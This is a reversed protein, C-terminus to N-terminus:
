SKNEIEQRFKSLLESVPFIGCDEGGRTRLSAYLHKDDAKEEEKNGIICMYPAKQLTWHRIKAPLTKSESDFHARVDHKTFYDTIKQATDANKSSVPLVAVQVPALWLPFNGNYHEILFGVFREHSGLPARHIIVPTKEDGHEDVYTLGFREGMYLDIQNTSTAFERGISSTVIFDIKPGYFAADGKKEVMPIDTREVAQRMLMEAKQWMEENGHYKEKDHPDRLALELHYNKIGLAKYYYEHLKMVNLFEDVAQEETCYIHADNQTFGRVRMLGFLEGSSEYRYCTGFEALRLPLERYSRQRTNFIMHHHPCNMPKLYYEEGDDLKMSPYMDGKYYPLHGSTLYLQSKTISPTTVHQYGHEKETQKAWKELEDKIIYGNPLWLILGPGVNQNITFLEMDKGIKRHDRKKAEELMALYEDLEEKTPFITGYIRTLMKNKESGKWYAGAISLLKFHKLEDKPCEIHGGRCLDCFDGSTYLTIPDGKETIEDILECKYPNDKFMEKAEESSVEKKDFHDWCMVLERMKKEINDLDDQTISQSLEVDYYFGNEIPPGLTIKTKPFLALIASAMLHACSHRLNDLNKHDDHNSIM